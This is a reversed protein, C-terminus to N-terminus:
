STPEEAKKGRRKPENVLSFTHPGEGEAADDVHVLRGHNPIHLQLRHTGDGNDATVTAAFETMEPHHVSGSVEQDGKLTKTLHNEHARYIVSQGILSM